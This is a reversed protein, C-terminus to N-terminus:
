WHKFGGYFNVDKYLGFYPKIKKIQIIYISNYRILCLYKITYEYFDVQTICIKDLCM